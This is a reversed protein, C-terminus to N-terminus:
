YSRRKKEFTLGVQVHFEFWSFEISSILWHNFWCWWCIFRCWLMEVLIASLDDASTHTYRTHLTNAPSHADTPNNQVGSSCLLAQQRTYRRVKCVVYMQQHSFTTTSAQRGAQRGAQRRVSYRSCIDIVSGTRADDPLYIFKRTSNLIRAIPTPPTARAPPFALGRLRRLYVTSGETEGGM